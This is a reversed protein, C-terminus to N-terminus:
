LKLRREITTGLLLWYYITALIGTKSSYDLRIVIPIFEYVEVIRIYQAFVLRETLRSM